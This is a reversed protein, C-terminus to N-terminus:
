SLVMRRESGESVSTGLPLERGENEGYLVLTVENGAENFFLEDSFARMMLLGRGSALLAEPDTCRDTAEVVDFGCGEDEITIWLGFTSVLETVTIRRRCWPSLLEREAALDTFRTSGDEKLDSCLGLNGHFFANNLAEELALCFHNQRTGNALHFESLGRLLRDRLTPIFRCATPCELRALRAHASQFIVDETLAVSNTMPILERLRLILNSRSVPTWHLRTETNQCVRGVVAFANEANQEMLCIRSDTGDALIVDGVLATRLPSLSFVDASTHHIVVEPLIQRCISSSQQFFRASNTVILIRM